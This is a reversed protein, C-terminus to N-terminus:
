GREQMKNKVLLYMFFPGGLAATIIGVPMESPKMLIRALTDALVLFGAGFLASFPALVRNDPGILLRAIHPVILGVFGIIGSISVSIATILSGVVLITKKLKETDIGLHEAAEDGTILVNLDRAYFFL